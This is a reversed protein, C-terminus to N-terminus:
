YIQIHYYFFYRRRANPELKFPHTHTRARTDLDKHKPMVIYYDIFYNISQVYKIELQKGGLLTTNEKVIATINFCIKESINSGAEWM